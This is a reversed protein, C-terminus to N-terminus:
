RLFELLRGAVAEAGNTAAAEPPPPASLLARVPERWAGAFLAEHDIFGCRLFRPMEAVLVDYEAFRGRSTYLIAAGNAICEAIIGYGPKTVVVDAAHVLDEYRYGRDYLTAEPLLRIGPPGDASAAARITLLIQFEGACDIRRVDIDDAGLGGFSALVLPRDVPLDFARRVDDPDRRSQRAVFPMDDVTGFTEFGGHLPLRWGAAACTYARRIAPLLEPADALQEPYAQYIWDWTFNAVVVSPADARAAAACALPPADSVVVAAGARTLIAAEASAREALSAHFRAARAITAREDLHLSDKQVAGTDCEVTSFTVPVRLTRTFLWEPALTRIHIPVDPALAGLANVVEIQRSAHGFGHGSIYFFVSRL